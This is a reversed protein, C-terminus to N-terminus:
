ELIPGSQCVGIEMILYILIREQVEIGTHGDGMSGVTHYTTYLVRGCGSPFGITLPYISSAPLAKWSTGEDGVHPGEVIVDAKQYVPGNEPDDGVYGEDLSTIMDFNEVLTLSDGGWGTQQAELWKYLDADVAHGLSDFGPVVNASGYSGDYSDFNVVPGDDRSKYVQLLYDYSWDAVYYKGGLKVYEKVNQKVTANKVVEENESSCPVFIIHYQKMKELSSLLELATGKLYPSGSPPLTSYAGNDYVDFQTNAGWQVNSGNLDALGMKAFLDELKDYSGMLLAIRPITDNGDSSSRSPLTTDEPPVELTADKGVVIPRVIRFQGKQIVMIYAGDWIQLDFAGYEDTKVFHAGSPLETCRECYVNQPIPAPANDTVYVLANMVTIPPTVSRGNPAYVIGRVHANPLPPPAVDTQAGPGDGTIIGADTVENADISGCAAALTCLLALSYARM